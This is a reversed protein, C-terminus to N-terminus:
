LRERLEALNDLQTDRLKEAKKNDAEVKVLKETLFALRQAADQVQTLTDPEHRSVLSDM